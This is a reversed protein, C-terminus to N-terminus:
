GGFSYALGFLILACSLALFWVISRFVAFGCVYSIGYLVRLAVYAWAYGNILVQPVFTYVAVAVAALFIPLGEFSNLQVAHAYAARGSLKALFDRPAVNDEPRFGGLVKAIIAWVYPLLCAVVVALIASSLQNGWAASWMYIFQNM